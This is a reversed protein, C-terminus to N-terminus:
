SDNADLAERAERAASTAEHVRAREREFDDQLERIRELALALEDGDDLAQALTPPEPRGDRRARFARQRDADSRWRRPRGGRGPVTM